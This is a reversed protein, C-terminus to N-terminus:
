AWAENEEAGWDDIRELHQAVRAPATEGPFDHAIARFVVAVQAPQLPPGSLMDIIAAFMAHAVPEPTRENRMPMGSRRRHEYWAAKVREVIAEPQLGARLRDAAWTRWALRVRADNCGAWDFFADVRGFLTGTADPEGRSSEAFATRNFKAM